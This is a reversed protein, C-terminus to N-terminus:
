ENSAPKENEFDAMLDAIRYVLEREKGRLSFPDFDGILTLTGGAQPLNLTKSYKAEAPQQSIPAAPTTPLTANKVKIARGNKRPGMARTRKTLHSSVPIGAFQAAKILFARAKQHTAGRVNHQRIADDLQLPSAKSLDVQQFLTAYTQPLIRAFTQKRTKDDVLQALDPQPKGEEDILNFLRMTLLVHSVMGGSITPFISSDIKDPISHSKLHDLATCFTPFPVYPITAKATDSNKNEM